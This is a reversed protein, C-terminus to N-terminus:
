SEKRKEWDKLFRRYEWEIRWEGSMDRYIFKTKAGIRELLAPGVRMKGSRILRRLENQEPADLKQLEAYIEPENSIVHGAEVSKWALVGVVIVFYVILLLVLDEIFSTRPFFLRKLPWLVIPIAAITLTAPKSFFRLALDSAILLRKILMGPCRKLATKKVPFM